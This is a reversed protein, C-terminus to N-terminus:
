ILLGFYAFFEYSQLLRLRAAKTFFFYFLFFFLHFLSYKITNSLAWGNQLYVKVVINLVCMKFFSYKLISRMLNFKLTSFIFTSNRCCM